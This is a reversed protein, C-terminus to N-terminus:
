NILFPIDQGCDITNGKLLVISSKLFVHVIDNIQFNKLMILIM